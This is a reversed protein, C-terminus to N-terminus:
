EVVIYEGDLNSLVELQLSMWRGLMRMDYEALSDSKGLSMNDVLTNFFPIIPPADEGPINEFEPKIGYADRSIPKHNWRWFERTLAAKFSVLPYPNNLVSPWQQSKEFRKWM